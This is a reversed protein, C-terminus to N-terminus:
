WGAPTGWLGPTILEAVNGAPDRFYLSRSGRPWTIEKEIVVGNVSLHRRWADLLEAKIGLAFHGAGTAGHAPLVEGKRTSEPRFVLLVSGPGARFFVHRGPELGILALGLVGRYFSAMADLDDAYIATEVVTEVAPAQGVPCDPTAPM